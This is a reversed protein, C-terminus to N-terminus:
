KQNKMDFSVLNFEVRDKVSKLILQSCFFFGELKSFM